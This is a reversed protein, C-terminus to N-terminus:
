VAGIHPQKAGKNKANSLMTNERMWALKEKCAVWIKTKSAKHNYILSRKFLQICSLNLAPFVTIIKKLILKFM